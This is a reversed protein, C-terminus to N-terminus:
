KDDWTHGKPCTIYWAELFSGMSFEPQHKCKNEPYFKQCVPCFVIDKERMLKRKKIELQKINKNIDKLEKKASKM